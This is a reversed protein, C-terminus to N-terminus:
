KMGRIGGPSFLFRERLKSSSVFPKASRAGNMRLFKLLLTMESVNEGSYPLVLWKCHGQCESVSKEVEYRALEHDPLLM